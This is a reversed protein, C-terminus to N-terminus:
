IKRFFVCDKTITYKLGHGFSENKILDKAVLFEFKFKEEIEEWSVGRRDNKSLESFVYDFFSKEMKM